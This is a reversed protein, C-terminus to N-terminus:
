HLFYVNETALGRMVILDFVDEFGDNNLDLSYESEIKGLIAESCYVLDAINVFGDHNLDGYAFEEPKEATTTATTTSAATTTTSTTTPKATTTTTTTSTTTTPKATTTTTTTSTTTTPKATTTTTTTSTTTTPKATTTTTTTSTTTLTTTTTTEEPIDTVPVFSPDYDDASIEPYVFHATLYNEEPTHNTFFSESGKMFYVYSYDIGNKGDRDDWTVDVAYWKDDDMLVYNWMHATKSEENYNGFVCICPISLRDCMMKFAKSYGECVAGPEVLAGLASGSFPSEMDYYTFTSITDHISKLQEYRTEGEIDFNEVAENLKDKYELIKSISSFASYPSPTLKISDITCTYTGTFRNRTTSYSYNIDTAPLDIWFLEPIDFTAFTMGSWCIDYVANKLKEFDESSFNASKPSASTEFSVPEPLTISIAADSPNVLEMFKKYVEVNNEDLYVGYNYANESYNAGFKIADPSLSGESVFIDDQSIDEVLEYGTISGESYQTVTDEAFSVSPVASCALSLAVSLSFASEFFKKM